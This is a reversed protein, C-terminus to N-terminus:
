LKAGLLLEHVMSPDLAQSGGFSTAIMSLQKIAIQLFGEVFCCIVFHNRKLLQHFTFHKLTEYKANSILLTVSNKKTRCLTAIKSLQFLRNSISHLDSYFLRSLCPKGRAPLILGNRTYTRNMTVVRFESITDSGLCM